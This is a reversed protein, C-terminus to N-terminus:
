TREKDINREQTSFFRYVYGTHSLSWYFLRQYWTPNGYAKVGTGGLFLLAGVGFIQAWRQRFLKSM